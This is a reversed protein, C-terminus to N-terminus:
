GVRDAWHVKVSLRRNHALCIEGTGGRGIEARLELAAEFLERSEKGSLSWPPRM